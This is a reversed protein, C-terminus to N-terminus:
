NQITKVFCVISCVNLLKLGLICLHLLGILCATAFHLKCLSLNRNRVLQLGQFLAPYSCPYRYEGILPELAPPVLTVSSLTALLLPLCM